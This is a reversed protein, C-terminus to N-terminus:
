LIVGDKILKRYEGTELYDSFEAINIRNPVFDPDFLFKILERMGDEDLYKGDELNEMPNTHPCFIVKECKYKHHYNWIDKEDVEEEKFSFEEYCMQLFLEFDQNVTQINYGEFLRAPTTKWFCNTMIVLTKCSLGHKWDTSGFLYGENRNFLNGLVDTKVMLNEVSVAKYDRYRDDLETLHGFNNIDWYKVVSTLKQTITKRNTYRETDKYARGLNQEIYIRHSENEPIKDYLHIFEKFSILDDDNGKQIISRLDGFNIKNPNGLWRIKALLDKFESRTFGLPSSSDQYYHYGANQYPNQFNGMSASVSKLLRQSKCLSIENLYVCKLINNFLFIRTNPKDNSRFDSLLYLEEEVSILFKLVQDRRDYRIELGDFTLNNNILDIFDGHDRNAEFSDYLEDVSYSAVKAPDLFMQPSLLSRGKFIECAREVFKIRSIRDEFNEYFDVGFHDLLTKKAQGRTLPDPTFNYWTHLRNYYDHLFTEAYNKYESM